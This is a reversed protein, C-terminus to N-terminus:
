VCQTCADRELLSFISLFAITLPITSILIHPPLSHYVINPDRNVSYPDPRGCDVEPNFRGLLEWRTIPLRQASASTLVKQCGPYTTLLSVVVTGFIFIYLHAPWKPSSLFHLSACAPKGFNLFIFIRLGSQWLNFTYLHVPQNASSLFYLSACAVKGFILFTFIRLGSQWLYFTYLHAPRKALSLISLNDPRKALSIHPPKRRESRVYYRFRRSSLSPSLTELSHRARATHSPPYRAYM